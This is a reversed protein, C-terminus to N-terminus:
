RDYGRAVALAHLRTVVDHLVDYDKGARAFQAVLERAEPAPDAQTHSHTHTHTVKVAHVYFDRGIAPVM